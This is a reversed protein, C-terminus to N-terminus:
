HCFYHDGSKGNYTDDWVAVWGKPVQPKLNKNGM